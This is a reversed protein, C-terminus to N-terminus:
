EAQGVLAAIAQEHAQQHAVLEQLRKLRRIRLETFLAGFHLHRQVEINSPPRTRDIQRQTCRGRLVVRAFKFVLQQLPALSQETIPTRMNLVYAEVGSIAANIILGAFVIGKFRVSVRPASWFKGMKHWEARLAQM